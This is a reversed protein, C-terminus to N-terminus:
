KRMIISVVPTILLGIVNKKIFASLALDWSTVQELEEIQRQYDEESILEDQHVESNAMFRKSDEIYAKLASEDIYEIFLILYLATIIAMTTYSFFGVTMGEWFRLFGSNFTRKVHYVSLFVFLFTILLDLIFSNLSLLPSFDLYYSTLFAILSVVGGSLGFYVGPNLYKRM